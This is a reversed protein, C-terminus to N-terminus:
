MICHEDVRSSMIDDVDLLPSIGLFQEASEFSKQLSERPSASLFSAPITGTICEPIVFFYFRLIHIFNIGSRLHNVLSVFLRGDAFSRSFDKVLVPSLNIIIM